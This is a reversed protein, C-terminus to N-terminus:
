NENNKEKVIDEFLGKYKQWGTNHVHHHCDRCLYICNNVDFIQDDDAVERPVIHHVEQGPSYTGNYWCLQCCLDRQRVEQRIKRWRSGTSIEKKRTDKYCNHDYSVLKGCRACIKKM